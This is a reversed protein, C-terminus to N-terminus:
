DSRFSRGVSMGIVAGILAGAVFESAWHITVSVALGVYFAYLLACLVVNKNKPWLM